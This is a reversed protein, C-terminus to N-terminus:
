SNISLSQFPSYMTGRLKEYRRTKEAEINQFHRLNHTYVRQDSTERWCIKCIEHKPVLHECCFSKGFWFVKLGEYNYFINQRRMWWKKEPPPLDEVNAVLGDPHGLKAMDSVEDMNRHAPSLPIIGYPLPEPEPKAEATPEEAQPEEAQPEEAQTDAFHHEVNTSANINMDANLLIRIRDEEKDLQWREKCPFKSYIQMNWKYQNKAIVKYLFKNTHRDEFGNRLKRINHGHQAKRREFNITSGVYINDCSKITYIVPDDIDEAIVTTSKKPRKDNMDAKLLASVRKAEENLLTRTEYPCTSHVSFEWEYNNSAIKDYLYKVDNLNGKKHNNIKASHMKKRKEVNTTCGVYINDKSKITYIYGTKDPPTDSLAAMHM